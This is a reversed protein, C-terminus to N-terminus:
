TKPAFAPRSRYSCIRFQIDAAPSEGAIRSAFRFTLSAPVATAPLARSLAASPRDFATLPASPCKMEVESLPDLLDRLLEFERFFVVLLRLLYRTAKKL